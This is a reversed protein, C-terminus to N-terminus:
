IYCTKDIILNTTPDGVSVPLHPPCWLVTYSTDVHDEDTESLDLFLGAETRTKTSLQVSMSRMHILQVLQGKGTRVQDWLHKTWTKKLESQRTAQHTLFAQPWHIYPSIYKFTLFARCPTTFRSLKKAHHLSDKTLFQDRPTLKELVCQVVKIKSIRSVISSVEM